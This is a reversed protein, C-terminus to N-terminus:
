PTEELTSLIASRNAILTLRASRMGKVFCSQRERIIFSENGKANIGDQSTAEIEAGIDEVAKDLVGVKIRELAATTHTSTLARVQAAKYGSTERWLEEFKRAAVEYAVAERAQAEALQAELNSIRDAKIADIMALADTEVSVEITLTYGDFEIGDEFLGEGCESGARFRVRSHRPTSIAGTVDKTELADMKPVGINDNFDIGAQMDPIKRALMANRAAILDADFDTM